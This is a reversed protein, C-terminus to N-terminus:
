RRSALENLIGDLTPRRPVGKVRYGGILLSPTGTVGLRNGTRIDNFVRSAVSPDDLCADFKQTDLGHDDAYQVLSERGLAQQNHFLTRAYDWFVGERRACEGAYAALCANPHLEDKILPNCKSDLPYNVFVFEIPQPSYQKYAELRTFARSCYPCQFDSFEIIRIPEGAPGARESAFDPGVLGHQEIDVPQKHMLRDVYSRAEALEEELIREYHGAYISYGVALTIGWVAVAVIGAVKTLQAAAAKIAEGLPRQAIAWAAVLMALNLGYWVVCFPCFAQEVTSLIGMVASSLVAIMASGYLVDRLGDRERRYRFVGVLALVFCTLAAAGGVLSVPLGFIEGFRGGTVSCGTASVAHCIKGLGGGGFELDLHILTLYVGDAVALLAFVLYALFGLLRRRRMQSLTNYQVDCTSVESPRM